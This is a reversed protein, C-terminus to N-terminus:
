LLGRNKLSMQLEPLYENENYADSTPNAPQPDAEQSVPTTPTAAPVKEALEDYKVQLEDLKSKEVMEAKESKLQGIEATLTEITKRADDREQVSKQFEARVQKLMTEESVDAEEKTEFLQSLFPFWALLKTKMPNNPPNTSLQTTNARRTPKTAMKEAQAIAEDMTAFGDALGNDIVAQGLFIAGDLAKQSVNNRARKVSAMFEADQPNLINQKLKKYNGNFADRFEVNKESSTDAYVEHTKVGMKEYYKSFDSFSAMTGISGVMAVGSSMLVTDASIGIKLAASAMMEDVYTLKPKKLSAFVQALTSSGHTTGGGSNVHLMIASVDPDAEAAKLWRSITETGPTGCYDERMIPGMLPVIRVGGVQSPRYEYWDEPDAYSEKPKRDNPLKGQMLAEIQPMYSAATFPEIQWQQRLINSLLHPYSM